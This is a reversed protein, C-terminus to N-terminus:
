RWTNKPANGDFGKIIIERKDVYERTQEIIEMPKVRKAKGPYQYGAGM